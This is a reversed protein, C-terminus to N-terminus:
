NCLFLADIAIALRNWDLMAYVASMPTTRMIVAFYASIGNNLFNRGLIDQHQNEILLCSYRSWGHSQRACKAKDFSVCHLRQHQSQTVHFSGENARLCQQLNFISVVIGCADAM